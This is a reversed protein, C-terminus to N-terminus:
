ISMLTLTTNNAKMIYYYFSTNSQHILNLWNLNSKILLSIMCFILISDPKINENIRHSVQQMLALSESAM